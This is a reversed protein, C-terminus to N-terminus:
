FFFGLVSCCGCSVTCADEPANLIEYQFVSFNLALGLRIPHTPPLQATAEALALKYAELALQAVADRPAGNKFEALYRHHNGKIKQPARARCLTETQTQASRHLRARDAREGCSCM